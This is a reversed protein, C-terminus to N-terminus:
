KGASVPRKARGDGSLGEDMQGPRGSGTVINFLWHLGYCLYIYAHGCPGYMIDTRATRGRRAHCAQDEEGRYAETETIVARFVRGDPLARCMRMGLMAPAAELVDQRFFDPGIREGSM